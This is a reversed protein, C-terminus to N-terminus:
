ISAGIRIIQMYTRVGLGLHEISIKENTGHFSTLDDTSQIMPNFRFSNDAVQSYHRSDSGAIMLGPSVIVDGYIQRTALSITEYGVSNWDSVQSAPRGSGSSIRVEVHEGEVLSKVHTVVGEVTDRPHIRFNITAVAETPLVNTKVSGSLMTPATTTRLVANGFTLSSFQDEILGAFLWRNAFLIKYGFPMHRSVNTFIQESLGTLGGPLPNKELKTIARALRGVATEAPPMSAHGGDSRAVVELTVSGKEAVNIAAVLPEVGPFMGDLLFSGEDLSWALQVGENELFRAVSSAGSHGGVEEDHGFSLYVTRAPEFGSQILSTVAEMLAIVASKDDQAGRGWIQGADIVGDFAPHIWRDESGPSVPVVDYHGALLIPQLQPDSGSWKFLLTYESLVELDLNEHVEPYTRALWSIFGTFEDAAFDAPNQTSVTQFRIAESLRRAAVTDDLDIEIRDVSDSDRPQHLWARVLILGIFLCGLVVTSIFIKRKM